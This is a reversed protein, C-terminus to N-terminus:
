DNASNNNADGAFTVTWTYTGVAAAAPLTTTATYTGDGSLTVTQSYLFGGPGTLTFVLGGAENYGGAVVASDTVTITSGTLTLAGTPNSTTFITPSAKVTTLSENQGNDIAGNNFSDGAYSAHWTYTGVQSALVTTPLAYTGDGNITVSGVTI